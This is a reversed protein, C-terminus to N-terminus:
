LAIWSFALFLVCAPVVGLRAPYPRCLALPHRGGLRRYLWEAGDFLTRWPNILAWVNGFVVSVYALGVWGIVWVMTPAINRYPNQNGFFGALLVLLFLGLCVLRLARTFGALLRGARHRNLAAHPFARPTHGVFLAVIGFTVVVASAAGFLYLSLPLPLEYRQGFGHAMAPTAACFAVAACTAVWAGARNARISRSAPLHLRVMRTAARPMPSTSRSRSGGRQEPRSPWKRSRARSSRPRSITATCTSSSRGTPRGACSSPM